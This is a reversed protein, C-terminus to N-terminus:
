RGEATTWAPAARLRYGHWPVTELLSRAEGLRVRVAQIAQRLGHWPRPTSGPQWDDATAAGWVDLVLTRHSVPEGLRAALGALLAYERRTVALEHGAVTVLSAGLDVALLGTRVVGARSAALEAYVADRGYREHSLPEHGYVM